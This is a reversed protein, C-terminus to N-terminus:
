QTILDNNGGDFMYRSVNATKLLAIDFLLVCDHVQSVYM